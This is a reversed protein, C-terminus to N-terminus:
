KRLRKKGQYNSALNVRLAKSYKNRLNASSIDAIENLWVNGSSVIHGGYSYEVEVSVMNGNPSDSFLPTESTVM